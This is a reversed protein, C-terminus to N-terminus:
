PTVALDSLASSRVFVRQEHRAIRLKDFPRRVVKRLQLGTLYFPPVDAELHM